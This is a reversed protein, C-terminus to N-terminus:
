TERNGYLLRLESKLDGTPLLAPDRLWELCLVTRPLVGMQKGKRSPKEVHAHLELGGLDAVRELHQRAEQTYGYEKSLLQKPRIAYSLELFLRQEEGLSDVRCAFTGDASQSRVEALLCLLLTELLLPRYCRVHTPESPEQGNESDWLPVCGVFAAMSDMVGELERCSLFDKGDTHLLGNQRRYDRVASWADLLIPYGQEDRRQIEGRRDIGDSLGYEAGEGTLAGGRLLRSLSVPSEHIQLYLGIGAHLDYHKILIGMGTRTELFLPLANGETSELYHIMDVEAEMAALFSKGVAFEKPDPCRSGLIETGDSDTRFLIFSMNRYAEAMGNGRGTWRRYAQIHKM